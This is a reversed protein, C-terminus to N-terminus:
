RYRKLLQLIDGRKIKGTETYAFKSVTYIKKPKEFASLRAFIESYNPLPADDKKELILIVREGLADDPESAILFPFDINESLKEELIEPHIKIGGTNIVNDHRGLWKFSTPSHLTVLDNTIIKEESILPADIVLCNRGDLEFKVDPLASFVETRGLGNVRRVAIHSITETMGYTAFVETTLNQLRQELENNIAGGGIILKKVKDLDELCHYVQYPVMAVFDYENDYQTLADKEPAVVHLQWGLVMARVLMM